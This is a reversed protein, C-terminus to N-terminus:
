FGIDLDLRIRDGNEKSAGYAVLQDVHFYRVKLTINRDIAYGSLIELGRFNTLRSDSSGSSSYDWRAWDNQTMFDVAAYRELYTWTVKVMWNGKTHLDGIALATVLGAKQDKLSAPISNHNDYSQFNQYFDVELKLNPSRLLPINAGVHFISYDLTYSGGGDPIDDIRSFRYFSPFIEPGAEGFATQIQIGQFYSDDDLSSGGHRLIFHGGRIDISRFLGSEMAFKKGILIGEPYVNDSWFLENQKRFPFINKGIWFTFGSHQMEFYIKEFGVPLTAFESFGDGFTLQPDQQKGPEGTRLRIGASIWQNHRYIVGVRLRYRARTRDTRFSGDSRRSNWDQELRFRADGSFELKSGISDPQGYLGMSILISCTLLFPTRLHDKFKM